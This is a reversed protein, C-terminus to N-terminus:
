KGKEKLGEEVEDNVKDRLKSQKELEADERKIEEETLVAKVTFTNSYGHVKEIIIIEPVFGFSKLIHIPM